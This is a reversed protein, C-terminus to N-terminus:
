DLLRLLEEGTVSLSFSYIVHTELPEVTLCKRFCVRVGDHKDLEM